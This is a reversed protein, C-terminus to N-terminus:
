MDDFESFEFRFFAENLGIVTQLVCWSLEHILNPVHFIKTTKM